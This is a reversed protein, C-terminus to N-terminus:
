LLLLSPTRVQAEASPDIMEVAIRGEMGAVVFREGDPSCRLVRTQSALSSERTQVFRDLRRVDFLEIARASGGVVLLHGSMDMTYAKFAGTAAGLTISAVHYGPARIDWQQVTGDWGGSLLTNTVFPDYALCSVPGSQSGLVTPASTATPDFSLIRGSLGAAFLVDDTAGFKCDLLPDEDEGTWLLGGSAGDYVRVKADWSSVALFDSERGFTM